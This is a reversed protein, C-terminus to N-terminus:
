SADSIDPTPIEPKDDQISATQMPIHDSIFNSLLKAIAGGAIIWRGMSGPIEPLVGIILSIFLLIDCFFKIYIPTRQLWNKPSVSYKSNLLQM